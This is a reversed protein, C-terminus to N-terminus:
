KRSLERSVSNAHETVRNYSRSKIRRIGGAMIFPVKSLDTFEGIGFMNRFFGLVVSVVMPLFLIAGIPVDTGPFPLRLFQWMQSLFNQTLTLLRM